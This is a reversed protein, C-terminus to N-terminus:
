KICSRGGVDVRVSVSKGSVVSKRDEGTVLQYFKYGIWAVVLDIPGQYGKRDEPICLHKQVIGFGAGFQVREALLVKIFGDVQKPVTHVHWRQVHCCGVGAGVRIHCFLLDSSCVDSSWDSIRM